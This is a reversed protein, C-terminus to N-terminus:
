YIVVMKKLKSGNEPLVMSSHVPTYNDIKNRINENFITNGIKSNKDDMSNTAEDSKESIESDECDGKDQESSESIKKNKYNKKYFCEAKKELRKHILENSFIERLTPSCFFKLYNIYFKSLKPIRELSEQSLYFRKLFEDIYDIIMYDKFLAVLHANKNYILAEMVLGIYNYKLKDQKTGYKNNLYEKSKSIIKKLPTFNYREGNSKYNQKENKINNYRLNNSCLSM